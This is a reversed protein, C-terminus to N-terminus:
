PIIKLMVSINFDPIRLKNFLLFNNQLFILKPAQSQEKSITYYNPASFHQHLETPLAASKYDAPRPNLDTWWSWKKDLTPKLRSNLIPSNGLPWLPCVTFRSSEAEITRIWGRGGFFFRLQSVIHIAVATRKIHESLPKACTKKANRSKLYTDAYQFRRCKERKIIVKITKKGVTANEFGAIVSRQM